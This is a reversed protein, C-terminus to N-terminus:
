LALGEEDVDHVTTPAVHVALGTISVEHESMTQAHSAEEGSGRVCLLTWTVLGTAQGQGSTKVTPDQSEMNGTTTIENMTQAATYLVTMAFCTCAGEFSPNGDHNAQRTSM